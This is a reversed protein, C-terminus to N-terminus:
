SLDVTTEVLDSRLWDTLRVPYRGPMLHVFANEVLGISALRYAMGSVGSIKGVARKWSIRDFGIPLGLLRFHHCPLM